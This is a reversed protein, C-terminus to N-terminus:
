DLVKWKQSAPTPDVNGASDIARVELCHKRLKVKFKEVTDCPEFDGLDLQCEFSAPEDASFEFRATRKHTRRKPGKVIMTEPPDSDM